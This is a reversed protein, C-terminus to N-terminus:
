PSVVPPEDGPVLCCHVVRHFSVMVPSLSSRTSLISCAFSLARLFASCFLRCCSLCLLLVGRPREREVFVAECAVFRRSFDLLFLGDFLDLVFLFSSFLRRRASSICSAARQLITDVRGDSDGANHHFSAGDVAVEQLSNRSRLWRGGM